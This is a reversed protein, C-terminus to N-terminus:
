LRRLAAHVDRPSFLVRQPRREVPELWGAARLRGLRSAGIVRSIIDQNLLESM